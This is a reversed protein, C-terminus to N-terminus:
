LRLFTNFKQEIEEEPLLNESVILETRGKFM